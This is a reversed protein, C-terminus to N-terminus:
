QNKAIESEFEEPSLLELELKQLAFFEMHELESQGQMQMDQVHAVPAVLEGRLIRGDELSLYTRGWFHEFGCTEIQVPAFHMNMRIMNESASFGIIVCPTDEMISVGLIKSQNKGSFTYKSNTVLPSYEFAFDYAGRVNRFETGIPASDPVDFHEQARVPGDFTVADWSMIMFWMGEITRPLGTFDFKTLLDEDQVSCTLSFGEVEKLFSMKVPENPNMSQGFGFRKWTFKERIRGGADDQLRTRTFYAIAKNEGFKTGDMRFFTSCRLLRYRLAEGVKYRPELPLPTKLSIGQERIGSRAEMAPLSLISALISFLSIMVAHKNNMKPRWHYPAGVGGTKKLENSAMRPVEFVEALVNSVGFITEYGSHRGKM